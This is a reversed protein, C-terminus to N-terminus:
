LNKLISVPNERIIIQAHESLYPQCWQAQVISESYEEATLLFSNISEKDEGNLDVYLFYKNDSKYMRGTGLEDVVDCFSEADSMNSFRIVFRYDESVSEEQNVSHSIDGMIQNFGTIKEDGTQKLIDMLKKKGIHSVMDYASLLKSVTNDIREEIRISVVNMILENNEYCIKNVFQYTDDEIYGQSGAAFVVSKVFEEAKEKNSFIEELDFGLDKIEDVPIICKIINDNLKEFTLNIVM